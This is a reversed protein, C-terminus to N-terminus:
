TQEDDYRFKTETWKNRVENYYFRMWTTSATRDNPDYHTRTYYDYDYMDNNSNLVDPERLRHQSWKVIPTLIRICLKRGVYKQIIFACNKDGHQEIYDVLDKMSESETTYWHQAVSHKAQDGFCREEEFLVYIPKSSKRTPAYTGEYLHESSM